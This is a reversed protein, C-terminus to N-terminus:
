HLGRVLVLRTCTSARLIRRRLLATVAVQEGRTVRDRIGLEQITYADQETFSQFRAGFQAIPQANLRAQTLQESISQHDLTDM